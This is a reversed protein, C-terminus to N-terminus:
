WFDILNAPQLNKIHSAKRNLSKELCNSWLAFMISGKKKQSLSPDEKGMEIILFPDPEVFM